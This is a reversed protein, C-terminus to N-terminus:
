MIFETAKVQLLVVWVASAIGTTVNHKSGINCIIIVKKRFYASIPLAGGGGWVCARREVSMLGTNGSLLRHEMGSVATYLM